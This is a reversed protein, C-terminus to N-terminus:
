LARGTAQWYDDRLRRKYLKGADTRPLQEQFDIAAPCKFPALRARCWESLAQALEDTDVPWSDPQM